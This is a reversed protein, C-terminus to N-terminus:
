KAFRRYALCHNIDHDIMDFQGATSNSSFSNENIDSNEQQDEICKKKELDAYYWLLQNAGSIFYLTLNSIMNTSFFVMLM